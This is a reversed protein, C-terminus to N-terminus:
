GPGTRIARSRAGDTLEDPRPCPREGMFDAPPPTSRKVARQVQGVPFQLQRRLASRSSGMAYRSFTIVRGGTCDIHGSHGSSDTQSRAQLERRFGWITRRNTHYMTM